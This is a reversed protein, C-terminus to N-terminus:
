CACSMQLVRSWGSLMRLEGTVGQLWLTEVRLDRRGELPHQLLLAHLELHGGLDDAGGDLRTAAGGEGHLGDLAAVLLRWM